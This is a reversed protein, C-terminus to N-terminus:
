VARLSLRDIEDFTAAVDDTVAGERVVHVGRWGAERAASVEASLDSAFLVREPRLDLTRAISRYSDPSQKSGSTTDFYGDFLPTLDGENTHGFLLQQADISGSSYVYIRIGARRWRTLAPVVDAYVPAILTGARYGDAWIWGQLDKLPTVKQDADSWAVLREIAGDTDGARLGALHAVQELVRVIAADHARARVFSAFRARAYPFLTDRVFRIDTTTGEIDTVFADIDSAHMSVRSEM